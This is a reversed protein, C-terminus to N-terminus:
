EDGALEEPQWPRGDAHRVARTVALTGGFTPLYMSHKGPGGAVAIMFDEWRKAITVGTDLPRDKYLLPFKRAMRREINEPSFKSLPVRAMEYLARKVDDKTYGEAAITAAHEPCLLLLPEGSYHVNNQGTQAMTGAIMTLLGGATTTEHDNINHPAEAGVVTVSSTGAAIGREAALSGWPSDEENEAICFSFKGPQGMTAKDITVPVGGGINLLILRVARGLAGNDWPGPGFLSGKAHVKLTQVLPGNVIMLPAVCHTTTQIGYLNFAPDVMAEVAAILLPLHAPRCGAMVANIAVNEVTAVGMGPGVAGIVANAPRGAHRLMRQVRAETPPVLPLGDSWGRAMFERQLDGWEDQCALEIREAPPATTPMAQAPANNNGLNDQGTLKALIQPFAADLKPGITEM